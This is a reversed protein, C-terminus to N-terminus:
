TEIKIPGARFDDIRFKNSLGMYSGVYYKDEGEERLTEASVKQRVYTFSLAALVGGLRMLGEGNPPFVHIGSYREDLVRQAREAAKEYSSFPGYHERKELTGMERDDVTYYDHWLFLIEMNVM